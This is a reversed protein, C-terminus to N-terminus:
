YSLQINMVLIDGMFPALIHAKNCTRPMGRSVQFMNRLKVVTTPLLRLWYSSVSAQGLHCFM